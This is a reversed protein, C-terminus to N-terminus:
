WKKQGEPIASFKEDKYKISRMLFEILKIKESKKLQIVVKEKGSSIKYSINRAHVIPIWLNEPIIVQLNKEMAHTNKDSTSLSLNKESTKKNNTSAILKINENDLNMYIVSDQMSNSFLKILKFDVTVEPRATKKEEYRYISLVKAEPLKSLNDNVDMSFADPSQTLRISKLPGEDYTIRNSTMCGTLFLAYLIISIAKNM